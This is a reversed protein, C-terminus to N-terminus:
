LCVAHLFFYNLVRPQLRLLNECHLIEWHTRRLLIGMGPWFLMHMSAIRRHLLSGSQTPLSIPFIYMLMMDLKCLLTAMKRTFIDTVENVPYFPNNYFFTKKNHDKPALKSWIKNVLKVALRHFCSLLM